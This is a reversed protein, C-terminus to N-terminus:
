KKVLGRREYVDAAQTFLEANRQAGRVMLNKAIDRLEQTTSRHPRLAEYLQLIEEDSLATLEAARRFNGALQPNENNEAVQAQHELTDPHVRVDDLTVNGRRIDDVSIEDANMGSYGKNM